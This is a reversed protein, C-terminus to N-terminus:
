ERRRRLGLLVGMGGVLMVLASPEPVVHLAMSNGGADYDLQYFNGAVSFVTSDPNTLADYDSVVLGDVKFLGQNWTGAYTMFTIDGSSLPAANLDSIMLVADNTLALSINGTSALLDTTSDTTNIELKFIAGSTLSVMEANLTGISAGPALAGTANVLVNGAAGGSGGLTGGNSVTTASPATISGGTNVLLTGGDVVVSTGNFAANLNTTGSKANLTTYSQAGNLNLVNAAGGNNTVTGTGSIAANVTLADSRNFVLAANNTVNSSGLTGSTAGDGIQLTGASIVTGSYSNAGTLTVKGPGVKTLIQPSTIAGNVLINGAGGISAPGGLGVGSTQVTGTAGTGTGAITVTSAGTYGSGAATMQLGVVSFSTDNGAATPDVGPTLVVGGSFTLTPTGTFGKGANTITVSTVKGASLTATATAGQGGGGAIAVTPATTYTTTGPDVTFTATTVGLSVVATAGSGTANNITVTTGVGYGNGNGTTALASIGNSLVAQTSTNSNILAGNGGIGTGTITILEAIGTQGNLDLVGGSSVTTGAATFGVGGFGLGNVHGLKLTSGSGINTNGTYSNNGNFAVSGTNSISVIGNTTSGNVITGNFVANGTGAVTLTRQAVQGDSRLTFVGNFTTTTNSINLNNSGGWTVAGNFILGNTGGITSSANSYVIPNELTRTGGLAILQGQSSNLTLTGTGVPGNPSGPGTLVSDAGIALVSGTGGNFSFGGTFTSAGNLTLRGTGNYLLSSGAVIGDTIAGAITLNGSGNITNSRATTAAGGSLAFGGVTLATTAGTGTGNSVGFTINTNGATSKLAGGFALAGMGNLTITRSGTLSVDGNGFTLNNSATGAATSFAFNGTITVANNTTLTLANGSTNELTGASFTVTGTGLATATGVNVRGNSLTFGGTAAINDGNLNLVATSNNLTLLGTFTNNGNLTTTSSNTVMVRNAGGAGTGNAIAGNIVTSGLGGLTWTRATASVDSSIDVANLTLQAGGTLSSTLQRDAGTLGTIKGGIEINNTGSITINNLSVNNTLKNVGSLDASAQLTGSTGSMTGSGLADKHGIRVTGGNMVFGGQFNAGAAGTIALTGLGQKSVTRAITDTNISGVTLTGGNVTVIRNAGSATLVGSGFSLSNGGTGVYSLDGGSLNIANNNTLVLSATASTNDIQSNAGGFVLAGSGIATASNIQFSGLNTLTTTGQYTNNGSLTITGGSAALTLGAIAETSTIDGSIVLTGGASQTFVAAAGIAQGLNIDASVTNTGTTNTSFIASSSSIGSNTLTLVSNNASSLTWGGTTTSFTLGQITLISSIDPLVSPALANFTANDLVGPIGGPGTGGTWNSGTNFDTTGTNTWVATDAMAGQGLVLAVAAALSL